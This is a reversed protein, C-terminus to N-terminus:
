YSLDQIARLQYRKRFYAYSVILVCFFVLPDLVFM